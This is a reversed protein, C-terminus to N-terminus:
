DWGKKLDDYIFDGLYTNDPAPKRVTYVMQGKHVAEWVRGQM